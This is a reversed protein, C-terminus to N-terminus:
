SLVEEVKVIRALGSDKLMCQAIKYAHEFSDAEVRDSTVEGDTDILSIIYFRIDEGDIAYEYVEDTAIILKDRM